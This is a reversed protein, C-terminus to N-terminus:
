RKGKNGLYDDMTFDAPIFGVGKMAELASEASVGKTKVFNRIMSAYANDIQEETVPKHLNFVRQYAANKASARLDANIVDIVKLVAKGTNESGSLAERLFEKQSDNLEGGHFEIATELSPVKYFTFPEADNTYVVKDNDDKVTIKFTEGTVREANAPVKSDVAEAVAEQNLVRNMRKM